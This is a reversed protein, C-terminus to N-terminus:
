TLEKIGYYAMELVLNRKHKQRVPSHGYLETALMHRWLNEGTGPQQGMRNGILGWVNPDRIDGHTGGAVETVAKLAQDFQKSYLLRVLRFLLRPRIRVHARWFNNFWRRCAKRRLRFRENWIPPLLFALAPAPHGAIMLLYCFVGSIAAQVMPYQWSTPPPAQGQVGDGPWYMAQLCQLAM